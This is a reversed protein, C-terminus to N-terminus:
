VSPPKPFHKGLFFAAILTASVEAVALWLLKAAQKQIEKLEANPLVSIRASVKQWAARYDGKKHLRFEVIEWLGVDKDSGTDIAKRECPEQQWDFLVSVDDLNPRKYRVDASMGEDLGEICSQYFGGMLIEQPSFIVKEVRETIQQVPSKHVPRDGLVFLALCLTIYRKM